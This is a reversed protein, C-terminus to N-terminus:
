PSTGGGRSPGAEGGGGTLNEMVWTEARDTGSQFAFRQGDPHIRLAWVLGDHIFLPRPEGGEAPIASVTWGGAYSGTALLLETRDRSWQLASWGVIEDAGLRRLLAPEGGTVPVRWLLHAQGTEDHTTFAVHQGDPSLALNERAPRLSTVVREAGTELDRAVIGRGGDDEETYYLTGGDPSIQFAAGAGTHVVLTTGASALDVKWIGRRGESRASVFLAEGDPAWVVRFLYHFPLPVRRSEGSEARIALDLPGRGAPGSVYAIRSGEPSWAPSLSREGAPGELPVAADGGVTATHVQPQGVAVAYFLRDGTIGLPRPRWLDARLARAPGDPAGERVPQRWITALEGGGSRYYVSGESGWGLLREDAMTGAVTTERGGAVTLVLVDRAPDRRDPPLDYAVFRGDPSFAMELPSRWDFSRLRRLSGDEVGVLALTTSGDDDHLAALIWEDGPSWDHPELWGAGSARYVTREEAGDVSATRLEQGDAGTWAYAIRRGDRSFAPFERYGLSDSWRGNGTIRRSVGESLDHLAVDGTEWDTFALVRGDPSPAGAGGAWMRRTLIEGAADAEASPASAPGEGPSRAEPGQCSSTLALALFLLADGTGRTRRVPCAALAVRACGQGEMM